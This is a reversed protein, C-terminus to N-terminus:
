GKTTGAQPKGKWKKEAVKQWAENSSQRLVKVEAELEKVKAELEIVDDCHQRCVGLESEHCERYRELRDVKELLSAIIQLEGRMDDKILSYAKEIYSHDTQHTRDLDNESLFKTDKLIERAQQASTFADNKHDTM